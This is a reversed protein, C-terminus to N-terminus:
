IELTRENGTHKCENILKEIRVRYIFKRVAGKATEITNSITKRTEYEGRECVCSCRYALTFGVNSPESRELTLHFNAM